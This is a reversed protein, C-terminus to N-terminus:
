GLEFLERVEAESLRSLFTEGPELVADVLDRKKQQLALIKEEVTGQTILRFVQVVNRQGIRYARDTAQDEVAPNWWPDFHIVVDAGTLNLGTGGAKLSILFFPVSGTNFENVLRVREEAPTAGDLYFYGTGAADLAERILALAGTFQSFVLARHGTQAAGDMLELLLQMKGSDGRYDEIFLGPHCCIQRLRTLLALIKIQSKAMGNEHLEAAVEKKAQQLYALYVKKQAETLGATAKSEIKEPLERLVDRKMRRLIFPRIHRALDGLANQDGSKTIPAEYRHIFKSHSLLYGPMLFDFVSWLETLSNEIPTGTLAFCGRANLMKVTRASITNPNKIYQAEDLFCYSFEAQRYLDIDSRLLSYSTIVLDADTMRAALDRREDPTGDIVLAKLNPTFKHVEGLWNYLLSKPAVVLVPKAGYNRESATFALVQLTKGLGMDDALIGGMGYHALTKLWKFGTKQYDRLVGRVEPPIEFEMDQPERINQVMEKFSASREMFHAGSDRLLSDLYLARYKPIQITKGALDRDSVDVQEFLNALSDLGPEELSVFSGSALRFYRKRLRISSLIGPLEAEDIDEIAFAIELWDTRESLRVRSTLHPQRIGVAKFAESYYVEYRESLVPLQQTLFQYIGAEDPLHLQGQHSQFGAERLIAMVEQERDLARVVIRDGAGPQGEDKDPLLPNLCHGGYDFEVRASIEAGERDLYLRVSLGTDVIKEHLNPAIAVTASKRVVPLVSSFFAPATKASITLRGGALEMAELIPSLRDFQERPVRYIRQAWLLYSGQEFLTRAILGNRTAVVTEEGASSVELEFPIEGEVLALSAEGADLYASLTKDKWIEFFRDFSLPTFHLDRGRIGSSARFYGSKYSDLTPEYLKLLLDLTQKSTETFRDGAPDFSFQKGFYVPRKAWYDRLFNELDKIVYLRERGIAFGATVERSNRGGTISLRPELRVDGAPLLTVERPTAYAELMRSVADRNRKALRDQEEFCQQTKFLAAAMHKCGGPYKRFAECECSGGIIRGEASFTLTVNYDYTGRVVAEATLEDPDLTYGIVQQSYYYSRGRLVSQPNAIFRSIEVESLEFM